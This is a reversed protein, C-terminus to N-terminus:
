DRLQAEPSGMIELVREINKFNKYKSEVFKAEKLSDVRIYKTLAYPRHGKTYRSKGSNHEKLREKPDKSTYGIYFTSDKLSQLVYVFYM